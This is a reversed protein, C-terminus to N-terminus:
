RKGYAISRGMCCSCLYDYRYKSIKKIRHGGIIKEEGVKMKRLEMILTFTDINKKKLSNEQLM